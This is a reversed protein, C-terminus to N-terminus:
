NLSKVLFKFSMERKYDIKLNVKKYDMEWTDIEPMTSDTYIYRDPIDLYELLNTQRSNNQKEKKLVVYFPLNFNLSFCLGHFSTTIVFSAEHFWGLFESPGADIINIVDSEKDVKSANKCLRVINLGKEKAIKKALNTIYESDTLVYILLYKEKLNHKESLESWESKKLLFTPDLVWDIKRNCIQKIIRVGSVERVAIEDLNDIFKKFIPHYEKKISDVGFSSAYSVKKAKPPAFLLFYPEINTNSNPNWVQDSGVMYIDYNFKKRYLEDISRIVESIRTNKNHFEQFKRDRKKKKFWYPLAKFNEIYPFLFEKLQSKYTQKIIPQSRKSKKHVTTKYYAYNLIEADFGLKNIAHQLAFAQLEAGYNNVNLITIIGVKNM